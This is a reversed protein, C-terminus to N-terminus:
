PSLLPPWLILRPPHPRPARAVM